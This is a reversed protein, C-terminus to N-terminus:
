FEVIPEGGRATLLALFLQESVDRTLLRVSGDGFGTFAGVDHFSYVGRFNSCNVVCAGVNQLKGDVSWTGVNFNNNHAWAGTGNSFAVINGYGDTAPAAPLYAPYDPDARSTLQRGGALFPWPRGSMEGVMATNSLGDTVATLRRGLAPTAGEPTQPGFVGSLDAVTASGYAHAYATANTGTCAFYDTLAIDGFAAGAITVTRPLGNSPCELLPISTKVVDRNAPVTWNGPTYQAALVPQELYPLIAVMWGDNTSSAYLPPLRRWASEYDHCGLVIQKLNNRCTTQAAAERVRQVAPVLLGILIAIIAIVVLLEILTFGQRRTRM